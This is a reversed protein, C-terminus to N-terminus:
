ARHRVLLPRRQTNNEWGTSHTIACVKRWNEPKMLSPSVDLAPSAAVLRVWGEQILALVASDAGQQIGAPM